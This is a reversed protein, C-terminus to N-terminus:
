ELCLASPRSISLTHCDRTGGRQYQGKQSQTNQCANGGVSIGQKLKVCRRLILCHGRKDAGNSDQPENLTVQSTLPFTM